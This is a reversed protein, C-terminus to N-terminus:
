QASSRIKKGVLFEELYERSTKLPFIKSLKTVDMEYEQRVADPSIKVSLSVTRKIERFDFAGRGGMNFIERSVGRACLLLIIDAIARTSIAQLRSDKAIFLPTGHMIDFIPGKRLETGLMMSSRLIIFDNVRSRVLFESVYKNFGYPSLRGAAIPQTESTTAPTAHNEYVDSSSIYIYKQVEFDLLTRYVSLTSAEFDELPHKDAWFRRSNGNANILVNFKEGRHEDYNKKDIGVIESFGSLFKMLDAGLLGKAGIVAVRGLSDTARPM